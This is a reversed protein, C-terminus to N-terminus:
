LSGGLKLFSSKWDINAPLEVGYCSAFSTWNHSIYSSLVLKGILRLQIANGRVGLPPRLPSIKKLFDATRFSGAAFQLANM